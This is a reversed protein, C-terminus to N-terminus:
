ASLYSHPQATLSLFSSPVINETPFGASPTETASLCPLFLHYGASSRAARGCVRVRGRGEGGTCWGCVVRVSMAVNVRSRRAKLNEYSSIM